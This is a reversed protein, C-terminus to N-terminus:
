GGAAEGVRGDAPASAQLDRVRRVEGLLEDLPPFNFDRELLTPVPGFHRYAAGLLDWVADSIASGHTDIRLDEAEVYHGAVHFYRIRESPMALMFDLPDYRHNIGNVVINNIDLLLDCDAEELVAQTFETESMSTDAPAYYSVNEVAIRQELIEQARRIRGAVWHVAEETFPIPMLDYLQGDDGCYSLHESYFRIGHERMFSKIDRLLAENLPAPGGISLSLGHILFPYRETFFRFKRGLKGGVRIWNEPAVEMFDVEAPPAAMLRDILGRRLGLGAGAVPYRAATDPM